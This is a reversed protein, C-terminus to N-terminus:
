TIEAASYSAEHSGQLYWARAGLRFTLNEVPTVGLMVEGMAGYGWGDVVTESTRVFRPNGLATLEASVQHGGLVGGVHAYPVIAAEASIDFMEAFSARGS